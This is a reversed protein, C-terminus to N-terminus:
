ASGASLGCCSSGPQHTDGVNLANTCPWGMGSPLAFRSGFKEDFSTRREGNRWSKWNRKRTNVFVFFAFITGVPFALLWFCGIIRSLTRGYPRGLRAGKAAYWHASTLGLLFADLIYIRPSDSTFPVGITAVLALVFCTQHLRVLGINLTETNSM